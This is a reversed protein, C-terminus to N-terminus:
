SGSVAEFEELSITGALLLDRLVMEAPAPLTDLLAAVTQAAGGGFKIVEALDRRLRLPTLLWLPRGPPAGEKARKLSAAAVEKEKLGLLTAAKTVRDDPVADDGLTHLAVAHLIGRLSEGLLVRSETAEILFELAARLSPMPLAGLVFRGATAERLCANLVQKDTLDDIVIGDPGAMAAAEITRNVAAASRDEPRFQFLPGAALFPSHGVHAAKHGANVFEDALRHMLQNKEFRLPGTIVVLGRDSALLDLVQEHTATDDVLAALTQEGIGGTLDTITIAEGDLTHVCSVYWRDADGAGTELFGELWRDQQRGGRLMKKIRRTVIVMWSEGLHGVTVLREAGRLRLAYPRGPDLHIQRAEWAVSKELLLRVFDGGTVDATSDAIEEATFFDGSVDVGAPEGRSEGYVLELGAAIEEPLGVGMTVDKGTIEAIEALAKTNTPDDIIVTLEDGILLYPLAQHHRAVAEPVIRAADRDILEQHIRVFAVDMQHSLGWTVDEKSVIGLDVLTEGFRKGTKKQEDLAKKVHAPTIMQTASLIAGLAHGKMKDDM